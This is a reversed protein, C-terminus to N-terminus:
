PILVASVPDPSLPVDDLDQGGFLVYEVGSIDPISDTVVPTTPLNRDRVGIHTFVLQTIINGTTRAGRTIVAVPGSDLLSEVMRQSTCNEVDDKMDTLGEISRVDEFVDEDVLAVTGVHRGQSMVPVTPVVSELDELVNESCHVPVVRLYNLSDFGFRTLAHNVASLDVRSDTCAVVVIHQGEFSEHPQALLM